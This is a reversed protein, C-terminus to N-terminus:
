KPANSHGAVIRRTYRVNAGVVFGADFRSFLISAGESVDTTRPDIAQELILFLCRLFVADGPQALTAADLLEGLTLSGAHTIRDRAFSEARAILQDDFPLKM